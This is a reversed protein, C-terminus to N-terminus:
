PKHNRSDYQDVCMTASWRKRKLGLLFSLCVDNSGLTFGFCCGGDGFCQVPGTFGEHLEPSDLCGLIDTLRFSEPLYLTQQGTNQAAVESAPDLFTVYKGAPLEPMNIFTGSLL